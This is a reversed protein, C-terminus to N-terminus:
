KSFARKARELFNPSHHGYTDRIVKESTGLYGAVEWTPVGKQLLWTACTHRLVHPTVSDDLGARSRASHWSHKFNQIPEGYYEIPRAFTLRRSRKLHPLLRYAIPAPTRRKNTEAEGEGKRYLVGRDLDFWGGLTNAQWRLQLIAERRTGTYLGILIFRALHYLPKAVRRWIIPQRTQVDFAIAAFGLAGALLAAVELRTLWRQRSPAKQPFTISVPFKLKKERHAYNLAASLTELERRATGTAVQRGLKGATRAKVYDRCTSGSIWDCAKDGFFDLLPTLHYGVLEPHALETARESAYFNLIDAISISAPEGSTFSPQHKRALYEALAKEAQEREDKRCGTSIQINRDIIVWVGKRAPRKRKRFYLRVAKARRSM